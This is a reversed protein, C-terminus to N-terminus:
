RLAGYTALRHQRQQAEQRLDDITGRISHSHRYITCTAAIQVATAFWDGDFRRV